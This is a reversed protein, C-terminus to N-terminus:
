PLWSSDGFRAATSSSSAEQLSPTPGVPRTNKPENGLSIRGSCTLRSASLSTFFYQAFVLMMTPACDPESRIRSAALRPWPTSSTLRATRSPTSSPKRMLTSMIKPMGPSSRDSTSADSDIARSNASSPARM